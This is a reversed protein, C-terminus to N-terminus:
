STVLRASTDWLETARATDHALDNTKAIKKEYYEGSTWTTGPPGRRALDTGPRGQGREFM